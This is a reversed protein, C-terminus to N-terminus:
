ASGPAEPRSVYRRLADEAAATATPGEATATTAGDSISVTAGRDTEDVAVDCGLWELHVLEAWVVPDIHPGRHRVAHRRVFRGRRREEVMSVHGPNEALHRCAADLAEALSGFARVHVPDGDPDGSRVEFGDDEAM